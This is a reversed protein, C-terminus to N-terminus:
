ISFKNKLNKHVFYKAIVWLAIVLLPILFPNTLQGIKLFGTTALIIGIIMISFAFNRQGTKWVVKDKMTWKTRVGYFFSGFKPPFLIMASGFLVLLLGAIVSFNLITTM